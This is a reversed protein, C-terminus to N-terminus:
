VELKLGTPTGVVPKTFAFPTTQPGWGWEAYNARVKVTHNGSAVGSVDYHLRVTGDGLDEAPSVDEVGDLEVGFEIVTDPMPDCVLYPM